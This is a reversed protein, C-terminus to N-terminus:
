DGTRDPLGDYLAAIRRAEALTRAAVESPSVVKVSSGFSVIRRILEDGDGVTARCVYGDEAATVSGAGLWEELKALASEDAKLEITIRSGLDVSLAARVDAGKRHTFTEDTLEVSKIRALRFLRFDNHVRCFGYVYWVGEKLALTYPDLLRASSKGTKDTYYISVTRCGAVAASVADLKASQSNWGGWGDSDIILRPSYNLRNEAIEALKLALDDTLDDKFTQSLADLCVRLRAIDEETFAGADMRGGTLSYGGNKGTSAVVPVGAAALEDIARQVTRPAIDFEKAIEERSMRGHKALSQMIAYLMSFKM